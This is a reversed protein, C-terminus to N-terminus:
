QIFTLCFIRECGAFAFGIHDCFLDASKHALLLDLVAFGSLHMCQRVPIDDNQHAAPRFRDLCQLCHQCLFSDRHM